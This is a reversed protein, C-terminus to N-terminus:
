VRPRNYALSSGMGDDAAAAAAAVAAAREAEAAKATAAAQREAVIAADRAESASAAATSVARRLATAESAAAARREEASDYRYLNCKLAFAQVPNERIHIHSFFLSFNRFLGHKKLEEGQKKVTPELASVM